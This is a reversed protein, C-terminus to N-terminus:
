AKWGDVVDMDIVCRTGSEKNQVNFLRAKTNSSNRLSYVAALPYKASILAEGDECSVIFPTNNDTKNM